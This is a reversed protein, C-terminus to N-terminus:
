WLYNVHPGVFPKKGFSTQYDARFEDWQHYADYYIM